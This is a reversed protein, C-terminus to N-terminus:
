KITVTVDGKMINDWNHLGTESKFATKLKKWWSTYESHISKPLPELNTFKNTGGFDLQQVHHMEWAKGSDDVPWKHWKGDIRINKTPGKKIAAKFEKSWNSPNNLYEKRLGKTKVKRLKIYEPDKSSRIKFPGDPMKARKPHPYKDVKNLIKPPIKSCNLSGIRCVGKMSKPLTPKRPNPKPKKKSGKFVEDAWKKIGKFLEDLKTGLKPSLKTVFKVIGKALKGAWIGLRRGIPGLVRMVKGGVSSLLKFVPKLFTKGATVAAGGGFTIIAFVVEFLINGVVVGYANGLTKGISKIDGSFFEIMKDAIKRGGSQVFGQVGKVMNSLTKALNASKPSANRIEELVKSGNDKLWKGLNLIGKGIDVAVMLWDVKGLQGLMKIVFRWITYPLKIIEWLFTITGWLGDRFFGKVIGWLYALLFPVSTVARAIKVIMSLMKQGGMEKIRELFGILGHKLVFGLLRFPSFIVVPIRRVMWLAFSVMADLAIEIIKKLIVKGLSWLRSIGTRVVSVAAGLKWNRAHNIARNALSKIDANTMRNERRVKELWKAAKELGGYKRMRETWIPGGPLLKLAGEVIRLNTRPVRAGTIPNKGLFVTMLNWGPVYELLAALKKLVWKGAQKIKNGVWKVGQKVKNGVWNIGQSVKKTGWNWLKKVGGFLSWRQIQKPGQSVRHNATQTAAGQQVVHTLEHALLHKGSKSKPNYNGSNFYIDSGSTFAKANLDRSMQVANDGTHIRVSEFNAGMKNEMEGKTGADMRSGSGRSIRLRQALNSSNSRAQSEKRQIAIKKECDQCKRQLMEGTNTNEDEGDGFAKMQVEEEAKMDVEQEEKEEKKQIPKRSIKPTSTVAKPGPRTITTVDKKPSRVIMDAMKDAEREYKDGPAGIRLKAQINSNRMLESLEATPSASDAHKGNRQVNSKRRPKPSTHQRAFNSM